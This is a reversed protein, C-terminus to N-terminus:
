SYGWTKSILHCPLKSKALLIGNIRQRIQSFRSKQRLTKIRRDFAPICVGLKERNDLSMVFQGGPSMFKQGGGRAPSVLLQGGAM